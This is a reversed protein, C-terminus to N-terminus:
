HEELKTDGSKVRFILLKIFNGDQGSSYSGVDPHYKTDDRHGMSPLGLHGCLKITDVIPSLKERNEQIRSNLNIILM